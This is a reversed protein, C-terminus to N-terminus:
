AKECQIIETLRLILEDRIRTTKLELKKLEDKLQAM